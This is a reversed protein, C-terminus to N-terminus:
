KSRIATLVSNLSSNSAQVTLLGDHYTVVPPSAPITQQNNATPQAMQQVPDPSPKIPATPPQGPNQVTQPAQQTALTAQTRRPFVAGTTQAEAASLCVAAFMVGSLITSFRAM